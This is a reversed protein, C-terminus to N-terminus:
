QDPALLKNKRKESIRNCIQQVVARPNNLYIRSLNNSFKAPSDGTIGFPNGAVDPM